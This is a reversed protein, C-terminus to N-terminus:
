FENKSDFSVGVFEEFSEATTRVRPTAESAGVIYDMLFISRVVTLLSVQQVVVHVHLCSPIVVDVMHIM